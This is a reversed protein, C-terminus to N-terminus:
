ELLIVFRYGTEYKFQLKVDDSMYSNVKIQMKMHCRNTVYM